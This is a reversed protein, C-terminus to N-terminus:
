WNACSTETIKLDIIHTLRSNRANLNPPRYVFSKPKINQDRIRSSQIDLPIDIWVPGKRGSNAAGIAEELIAPVDQACTVMSAFKTIPKVLEIINAEQQGYTRLHTEKFYTTENLINQGSIFIVPIIM